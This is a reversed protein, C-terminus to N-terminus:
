DSWKLILAMLTCKIAILSNKSKILLISGIKKMTANAIIKM